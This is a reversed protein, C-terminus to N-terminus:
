TIQVIVHADFPISISSNESKCKDGFVKSVHMFTNRKTCESAVNLSLHRNEQRNRRDHKCHPYEVLPYELRISANRESSHVTGITM